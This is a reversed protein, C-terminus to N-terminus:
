HAAIRAALPGRTVVLVLHSIARRSTSVRHASALGLLLRSVHNVSAAVGDVDLIDGFFFAADDFDVREEAGETINDLNIHM